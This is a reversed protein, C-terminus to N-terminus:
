GSPEWPANQVAFSVQFVPTTNLSRQPSLEEVLREFPVDQHQYAELATRRVQKLLERFSMGGESADADSAQERFVRDDGGVASGASRTRDALGSRYGGAATGRYCCGRVGGAADHVADGPEGPEAAKAEGNARGDVKCSMGRSRIDAGSARGTWLCVGVAGTDGGVAGELVGVRMWREAM